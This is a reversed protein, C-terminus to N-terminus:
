PEMHSASGRSWYPRWGVCKSLLAAQKLAKSMLSTIFLILTSVKLIEQNSFMIDSEPKARAKEEDREM